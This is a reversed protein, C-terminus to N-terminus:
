TRLRAFRVTIVPVSTIQRTISPVQHGAYVHPDGGIVM